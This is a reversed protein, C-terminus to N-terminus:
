RDLRYLFADSLLADIILQRVHGTRQFNALLGELVGQTYNDAKHGTSHRLYSEVFCAQALESGALTQALERTDVYSAVTNGSNDRLVGAANITVTTNADNYAPEFTRYRGTQDFHELASGPENMLKHCQWCQGDSAQEGTIVDWRERTSIAHAPLEITDPDIGVPVGMTHCLLHERIMKGRKVISTAAFDSNAAHTIGWHLLGGRTAPTVVKQVGSEGQPYASGLAYFSSLEANVYTFDPNFLADLTPSSGMVWDSVFAIQENLMANILAQSLGPKESVTQHTHSYHRIFENFHEGFRADLLMADIEAAIDAYSDLGAQEAKALLANTPPVGWLQFSLESAVEFPTLRYMAKAPDWEGLTIHYNFDPSILLAEILARAGDNQNIGAYAQAEDDTLPRKLMRKALQMAQTQNCSNASCGITSLNVATAIAAARQQNALVTDYLFVGHEADSPYKFHGDFHPKPWQAENLIVGLVAEVANAYERPTLKRLGRVGAAPKSALEITFSWERLWIDSAITNQCTDNCQSVPMAAVKTLFAKYSSDAWRNKVFQTNLAGGVGGEKHCFACHSTFLIQGETEIEPLEVPEGTAWASQELDNIEAIRYQYNNGATIKADAFSVEDRNITALLQWAGENTRRELLFATEADSNDVWSVGIIDGSASPVAVINSPAILPAASSVSSEAESSNVSSTISASTSSNISTTSSSSLIESSSSSVSLSSSTQVSASSNVQSHNISSSAESSSAKSSSLSSSSLEQSANQSSTTDALTLWPMGAGGAFQAPSKNLNWWKAEFNQQQWSVRDGAIYAKTADWEQYIAQVSSSSSQTPASSSMAQSSNATVENNNLLLWPLGAGGAYDSPSEDLTWWKAQYYLGDHFVRDGTVYAITPQWTAYVTIEAQQSSDASSTAAASKSSTDRNSSATLSASSQTNVSSSATESFASVSANSSSTQIVSQAQSSVSNHTLSSSAVTQTPQNVNASPTEGPGGGGCGAASVLYLLTLYFGARVSFWQM